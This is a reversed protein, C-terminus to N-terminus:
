RLEKKREKKEKKEDERRKIEEEEERQLRCAEAKQAQIDKYLGFLTWPLLPINIALYKLLRFSQFPLTDGFVPKPGLSDKELEEIFEKM